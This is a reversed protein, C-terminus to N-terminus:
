SAVIRQPSLTKLLELGIRTEESIIQQNECRNHNQPPEKELNNHPLMKSGVGRGGKAKQPLSSWYEDLDGDLSVCDVSM